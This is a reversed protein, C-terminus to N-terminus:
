PQTVATISDYRCSWGGAQTRRGILLSSASIFRPAVCLGLILYILMITVQSDRRAVRGVLLIRAYFSPAPYSCRLDRKVPSLEDGTAHSRAM